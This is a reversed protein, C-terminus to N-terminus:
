SPEGHRELFSLASARVELPLEDDRLERLLSVTTRYTRLYAICSACQELHRELPLRTDQPLKNELYDALLTVVRSCEAASDSGTESTM